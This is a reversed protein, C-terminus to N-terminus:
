FPSQQRWYLKTRIKIIRSVFTRLSNRGRGVVPRTALQLTLFTGFVIIKRISQNIVARLHLKPCPLIKVLTHWSNQECPPPIGAHMAPPIEGHRAAARPPPIGAHRASKWAGVWPPLQPPDPWPPDGPGCGLPFNLPIQGPLDGSGCGLPFNLPIQGLPTELGVCLPSTSPSRALPPRWAWVQPPRSRPSDAWLPHRTGPPRSRPTGPGPHPTTYLCGRPRSSSRATHM